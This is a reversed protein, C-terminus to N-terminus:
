VCSTMAFLIKPEQRSLKDSGLRKQTECEVLLMDEM